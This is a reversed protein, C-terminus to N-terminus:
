ARVCVLNMTGVMGVLTASATGTVFSAAPWLRPVLGNTGGAPKLGVTTTTGDVLTDSTTTGNAAVGLDITNASTTAATTINMCASIIILDAGLPNAQSVVAGATTGTAAVLPVSYEIVNLGVYTPNRSGTYQPM